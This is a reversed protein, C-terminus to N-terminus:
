SRNEEEQIYRSSSSGYWVIWVLGMMGGMGYWIVDYQVYVRVDAILAARKRECKEDKTPKNRWTRTRKTKRGGHRVVMKVAIDVDRQVESGDRGARHM